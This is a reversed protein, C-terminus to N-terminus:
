GGSGAGTRRGGHRWASRIAALERDTAKAPRRPIRSIADDFVVLIRQREGESLREAWAAYEDVAERVVGSKPMGLREATRDIRDATGQDM